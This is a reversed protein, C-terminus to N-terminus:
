NNYICKGFMNNSITIFFLKQIDKYAMKDLLRQQSCLDKVIRGHGSLAALHVPLMGQFNPILQDEPKTLKTLEEVFSTNGAGAAIHLATNGSGIFQIRVSSPDNKVIDEMKSWDGSFACWLMEAIREFKIKTVTIKIV